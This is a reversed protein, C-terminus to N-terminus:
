IRLLQLYLIQYDTPGLVTIEQSGHPEGNYTIEVDEAYTVTIGEDSNLVILQFTPNAALFNATEKFQAQITASGTQYVEVTKLSNDKVWAVQTNQSTYQISHGEEKEYNPDVQLEVMGSIDRTKDDSYAITVEQPTFKEALSAKAITVRVEGTVTAYGGGEVTADYSVIYDGAEM